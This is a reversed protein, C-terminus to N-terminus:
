SRSVPHPSNFIKLRFLAGEGTVGPTENVVDQIIVLWKPWDTANALTAFARHCDTHILLENHSFVPATSPDYAVPWHIARDRHARDQQQETSQAGMSPPHSTSVLFVATIGKLVSHMSTNHEGLPLSM